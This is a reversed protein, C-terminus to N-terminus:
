VCACNLEGCVTVGNFSTSQLHAFTINTLADSGYNFDELGFTGHSLGYASALYSNIDSTAADSFAYRM